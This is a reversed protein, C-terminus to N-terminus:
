AKNQPLDLHFSVDISENPILGKFFITWPKGLM